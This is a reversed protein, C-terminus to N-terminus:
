DWPNKKKGESAAPAPAEVKPDEKKAPAPAPEDDFKSKYAAPAASGSSKGAQDPMLFSGIKNRDSYGGAGKEIDLKCSFARELLEDSDKANPRGCAKAWGAVQERGIKEAKESSNFINFNQWVKRGAFESPSVVEFTTALYKGNGDKTSKLEAETAKLKYEGKPMVEFDGRDSYETESVSFGFNAM